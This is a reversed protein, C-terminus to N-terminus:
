KKYFASRVKVPLERAGSPGSERTKVSLASLYYRANMTRHPVGREEDMLTYDINM